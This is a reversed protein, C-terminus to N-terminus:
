HVARRKPASQLVRTFVRHSASIETALRQYAILTHAPDLALLAPASDNWASASVVFPEEVNGSVRAALVDRYRGGREWTVLFAGGSAVVHPLRAVNSSDIAFEAGIRAGNRDLFVGHIAGGRQYALLHVNGNWAISPAQGDSEESSSVLAGNRDIVMVRIASGSEGVALYSEGNWAVSANKNAPLAISSLVSSERVLAARMMPAAYYGNSWVVLTNAGDSAAAPASSVNSMSSLVFSDDLVGDRTVRRAVLTQYLEETLGRQEQWVVLYDRGDFAIAPPATDLYVTPATGITFPEGLPTGDRDLRRGMTAIDSLGRNEEWVALVSSGDSALAPLQQNPATRSVVTSEDDDLFRAYVNQRSGPNDYAVWTALTRGNVAVGRATMVQPGPLLIQPNENYITLRGDAAGLVDVRAPHVVVDFVVHQAPTHIDLDLQASDDAAIRVSRLTPGSAYAVVIEGGRSGLVLTCVATGGGLEAIPHIAGLPQGIADLRQMQVSCPQGPAQQTWAVAFGDDTAVIVPDRANGLDLDGVRYSPVDNFLVPEVKTIAILERGNSALDVVRNAGFTTGEADLVRGTGDVEAIRAQDAVYGLVDRRLWTVVFRTGNWVVRPEVDYTEATAILIGQPDLVEGSSTIRSALIDHSLDSRLDEWVVLSLDGNTAVDLIKTSDYLTVADSPALTPAAVPKELSLLLALLFPVM